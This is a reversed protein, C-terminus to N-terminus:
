YKNRRFTQPSVFCKNTYDHFINDSVYQKFTEEWNHEKWKFLNLTNSFSTSFLINPDIICYYSSSSFQM